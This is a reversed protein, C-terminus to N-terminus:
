SPWAPVQITGRFCTGSPAETCAIVEYEVHVRAGARWGSVIVGELVATGTENDQGGQILATFSHRRAQVEYMAELRAIRGDQNMKFDFIEGAFDGVADGGVFGAMLPFATIWKTFTVEVPGRPDPGAKAPSGGALAPSIQLLLVTASVLAAVRSQVHIIRM